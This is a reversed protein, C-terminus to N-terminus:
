RQKALFFLAVTGPGCHAGIVPGIDFIMDVSVGYKEKLEQEIIRADEECDAHTIYVPGRGTEIATEGYKSVLGKLSKRRGRAKECSALRGENDAHLIPKINLAGGLLATTASIRGGRKLYVLNDVTFWHAIQPIKERAYDAVEEISAGENKKEVALFILMGFGGSACLSDVCIIKRDPYKKLLEEAAICSSNFTTSLGSSFGIYLVDRGEKLEEEFVKGLSDANVAATKAVKGARMMDYFEKNGISENKYERDEEGEFLFTIDCCKVGLQKMTEPKLDCASDTIIIFDSM